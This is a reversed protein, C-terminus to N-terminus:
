HTEEDKLKVGIAEITPTSNGSVTLAVRIQLAGINEVSLDAFVKNVLVDTVSTMGVFSDHNVKYSFTIGTSAPLTEYYAQVGEIIKLIDRQEQFLM